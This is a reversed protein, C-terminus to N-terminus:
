PTDLLVSARLAASGPGNPFSGALRDPTDYPRAVRYPDLPDPFGTKWVSIGYSEVEVLFMPIGPVSVSGHALREEVMLVRRVDLEEVLLIGSVGLGHRLGPPGEEILPWLRNGLRRYDPKKM